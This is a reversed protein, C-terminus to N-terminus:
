HRRALDRHWRPSLKLGTVTALLTGLTAGASVAGCSLTWIVIMEATTPLEHPPYEPPHQTWWLRFGAFLSLPLLILSWWSGALIGGVAGTIVLAVLIGLNETTPLWIYALMGVVVAAALLRLQGRVGYRWFGSQAAVLPLSALGLGAMGVFFLVAGGWLVDEVFFHVSRAGSSDRLALALGGVVTVPVLATVGHALYRGLRLGPGARVLALVAPGWFVTAAGTLPWAPLLTAGLPAGALGAVAATVLLPAIVGQREM